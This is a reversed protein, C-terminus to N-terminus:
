FKNIFFLSYLICLFSTLMMVTTMVGWLLVMQLSRLLIRRWTVDAEDDTVHEPQKSGKQWSKDNEFLEEVEADKWDQSRLGGKRWMKHTPHYGTETMGPDTSHFYYRIEWDLMAAKWGGICHPISNAETGGAGTHGERGVGVQWEAGNQGDVEAGAKGEVLEAVTQGEVEAGTQGVLHCAMRSNWNGATHLLMSWWGLINLFNLM